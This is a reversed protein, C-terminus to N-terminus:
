SQENHLVWACLTRLFLLAFVYVCVSPRLSDSVTDGGRVSFACGDGLAASPMVVRRAPVIVDFKRDFKVQRYWVTGEIHVNICVREGWPVPITLPPVAIEGRESVELATLKSLNHHRAIRDDLAHQGPLHILGGVACLSSVCVYVRVCCVNVVRGKRVTLRRMSPENLYVPDGHKDVLCLKRAPVTQMYRVSDPIPVDSVVLVESLERRRM